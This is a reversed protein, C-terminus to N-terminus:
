AWVEFFDVGGSGPDASSRGPQLYGLWLRSVEEALRADNWGAPRDRVAGLVASYGLEAAGEPRGHLIEARRELLFRTASARRHRAVEGTPADPDAILLEVIARARDALSPDTAARAALEADWRERARATLEEDLYQLLAERGAFRAYFSGVSTRARAVVDQVTLGDRGKEIILVRSAEVIRALTRRSRAQTPPAIM